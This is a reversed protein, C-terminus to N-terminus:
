CRLHDLLWLLRLSIWEVGDVGDWKKSLLEDIWELLSSLLKFLTFLTLLTYCPAVEMDSITCLQVINRQQKSPSSGYLFWFIFLLSWRIPYSVIDSLIKINFTQALYSISYFEEMKNFNVESSLFLSTQFIIQPFNSCSEFPPIHDVPLM